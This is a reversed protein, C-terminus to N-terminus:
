LSIAPVKQFHCQTPWSVAKPQASLSRGLSQTEAQQHWGYPCGRALSPQAPGPAPSVAVRRSSVGSLDWASAPLPCSLCDSPFTPTIRFSMKTSLSLSLSLSLICVQVTPLSGSLLLSLSGQTARSCSSAEELGRPGASSCSASNRWAQSCDREM